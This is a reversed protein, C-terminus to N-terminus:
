GASSPSLSGHQPHAGVRPSEGGSSCAALQSPLPSDNLKGPARGHFDAESKCSGSCAPNEEGEEHVGRGPSPPLSVPKPARHQRDARKTGAQFSGLPLCLSGPIERDHCTKQNSLASLLLRIRLLPPRRIKRDEPPFFVVVMEM